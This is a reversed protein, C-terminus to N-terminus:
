EELLGQTRLKAIFARVEREIAAGSDSFHENMRAILSPEDCGAGIEARNGRCHFETCLSERLTNRVSRRRVERVRFKAYKALRLM